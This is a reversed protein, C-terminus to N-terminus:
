KTSRTGGRGGSAMVMAIIPPRSMPRASRNSSSFRRMMSLQKLLFSSSPDLANEETKLETKKEGGGNRVRVQWDDLGVDRVDADAFVGGM